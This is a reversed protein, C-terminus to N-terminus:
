KKYNNKVDEIGKGLTQFLSYDKPLSRSFRALAAWLFILVIAAVIVTGWIIRIKEEQPKNRIKEIWSM